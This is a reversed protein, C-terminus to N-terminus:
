AAVTRPLLGGLFRAVRRAAPDAVSQEVDPSYNTNTNVDYTVTRGDDTEVFEIGAIEVGVEALFREYSAILPHRADIDDRISFLPVAVGSADPVACAEAPCLEFGGGSIDVRVAYAFRGGVFEARTISADRSPLYEQILTIGDPSRDLGDAALWDEFQEHADFRHM